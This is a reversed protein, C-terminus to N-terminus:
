AGEQGPRKKNMPCGILEKFDICYIYKYGAASGIAILFLFESSVKLVSEHPLMKQNPLNIFRLHDAWLEESGASHAAGEVKTMKVLEIYM